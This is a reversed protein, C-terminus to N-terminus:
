PRSSRTSAITSATGTSWLLDALTGRRDVALALPEALATHDGRAVDWRLERWEREGSRLVLDRPEVWTM